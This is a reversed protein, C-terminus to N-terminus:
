MMMPMVAAGISLEKDSGDRESVVIPITEDLEELCVKGKFASLADIIYLPNFCIPLSPLYVGKILGDRSEFNEAKSSHKGMFKYEIGEEHEYLKIQPYHKLGKVISELEKRLYQADVISANDKNYNPIVKSMDPFPDNIGHLRVYFGDGSYIHYYASMYSYESLTGTPHSMIFQVLQPRVVNKFSVSDKLKAFHLRHSDTSVAYGNQIAVGTFSERFGFEKDVSKYVYSLDISADLSTQSELTCETLPLPHYTSDRKEFSYVNDNALKISLESDGSQFEVIGTKGCKVKLLESLSLTFEGSEIDERGNSDSYVPDVPVTLTFDRTLLSGTLHLHSGDVGIDVSNDLSVQDKSLISLSGLLENLIKSGLAFKM